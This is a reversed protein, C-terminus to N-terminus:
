SKFNLIKGNEKIGNKETICVALDETQTHTHTHKNYIYM